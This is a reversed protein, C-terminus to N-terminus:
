EAFPNRVELATPSLEPKPGRSRRRRHRVLKQPNHWYIAALFAFYVANAPIHLNFDVLSHLALLLLGLGAGIQLYGFNSENATALIQPWRRSYEWGVLVLILAIIVGGGSLWELYDNHARNVHGLVGEPQYRRFVAPYTGMGSGTPFFAGMTQLTATNIEWREDQLPDDASFRELVPALGIQVMAALGLALVLALVGYLSRGGLRRAFLATALLVALIGLGIGARSRTFVLCILILLSLGIYIALRHYRNEGLRALRQRLTQGNSRHRNRSLSATLQGLALPLSMILLGALHNRNVYTGVASSGMLHNGFRLPSDPGDGVQILGLLAQCGVVLLFLGGLLRLRDTTLTGTALFVAMPGLLALWAQETTHPILSLAWGEPVVGTAQLAENYTERGPLTLGLSEPLPLLQILPWSLAAGMAIWLSRPLTPLKSPQLLLHVLLGLAICEVVM